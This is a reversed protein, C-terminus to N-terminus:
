FELYKRAFRRITRVAKLAEGAEAASADVGPYRVDVAYVSLIGAPDELQKFSRSERSCLYILRELDHIKPFRVGKLLLYAKMYKEAAQQCHFCVIEHFAKRGSALILASAYDLEAKRIWERVEEKPATM